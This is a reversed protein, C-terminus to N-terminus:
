DLQGSRDLWASVREAWLQGHRQLGAPNFHVGDRYTARLADTDPGEIALGEKWVAVQASRFEEDAPDSESHYTAMAVVWPVDWGASERSALIVKTMFATYQEGTIQRDAPYGSRAQGADSEGQHWLIARCGHPGLATLRSSLKGFLEGTAEWENPGIARVHRGTTPQNHMREGEPLWERVSTGGAGVCAVGI